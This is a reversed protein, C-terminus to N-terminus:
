RTAPHYGRGVRSFSMMKGNGFTKLKTFLVVERQLWFLTCEKCSQKSPTPGDNGVFANTEISRLDLVDAVHGFRLSTRVELLMDACHLPQVWADRLEPKDNTKESQKQLFHIFVTPFSGSASSFLYWQCTKWPFSSMLVHESGAFISELPLNCQRMQVAFITETHESFGRVEQPWPNNCLNKGFMQRLGKFLLTTLGKRKKAGMKALYLQAPRHQSFPSVSYHCGHFPHM